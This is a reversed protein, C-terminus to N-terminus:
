LEQEQIILIATINMPITLKIVILVLLALLQAHEEMMQQVFSVQVQLALIIVKWVTIVQIVSAHM